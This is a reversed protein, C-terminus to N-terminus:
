RLLATGVWAGVAPPLIFGFITSINNILLMGKDSIRAYDRSFKDSYTDMVDRSMASGLSGGAYGLQEKRSVCDCAFMKDYLANTKEKLSM